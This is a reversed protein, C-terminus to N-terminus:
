AADDNRPLSGLTGTGDSAGGSVLVTHSTFDLQISTVFERRCRPGRMLCEGTKERARALTVARASKVAAHPPPPPAWGVEAGAAGVLAAGAAVLGAAAGAAEGAPEGAAAAETAAEGAAEGAAAAEGEAAAAAAEGEATARGGSCSCRMPPRTDTSPVQLPLSCSLKMAMTWGKM